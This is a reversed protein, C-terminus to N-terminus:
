SVLSQPLCLRGAWSCCRTGTTPLLYRPGDGDVHRVRVRVRHQLCDFVPPFVIAVRRAGVAGDSHLFAVQESQAGFQVASAKGKGTDGVTKVTSPVASRPGTRRLYSVVPQNRPAGNSHGSRSHLPGSSGPTRMNPNPGNRMCWKWGGM